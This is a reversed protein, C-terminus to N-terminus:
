GDATTSPCEYVKEARITSVTLRYVTGNKRLSRPLWGPVDHRDEVMTGVEFLGRGVVYRRRDASLNEFDVTENVSENDPLYRIRFTRGDWGCSTRDGDVRPKPTGGDTTEAVASTPSGTSQASDPGTSVCGSLLSLALVAILLTRVASMSADPPEGREKM